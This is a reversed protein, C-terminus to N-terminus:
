TLICSGLGLAGLALHNLCWMHRPPQRATPKRYETDYEGIIGDLVRVAAAAALAVAAAIVAQLPPLSALASLAADAAAAGAAAAAAAKAAAAVGTVMLASPICVHRVCVLVFSIKHGRLISLQRHHNTPNCLLAECVSPCCTMVCMRWCAQGCVCAAASGSCRVCEGPGVGGRWEVRMLGEVGGVCGRWEVWAGGGRWGCGGRWTLGRCGGAVLAAAGLVVAATRAAQLRGLAPKCIACQATHTHYTDFLSEKSRDIPAPTTRGGAYPVGGGAQQGLWTRFAVTISRATSRTTSPPSPTVNM